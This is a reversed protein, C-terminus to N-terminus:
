PGGSLSDTSAIFKPRIRSKLASGRSPWCGSHRPPRRWHRQGLQCRRRRLASTCPFSKPKAKPIGRRRSNRGSTNRAHRHTLSLVPRLPDDPVPHSTPLPATPYINNRPKLRFFGSSSNNKVTPYNGRRLIGPWTNSTCGQWGDYTDSKISNHAPLGQRTAINGADSRRKGSESLSCERMWYLAFMESALCAATLPCAALM